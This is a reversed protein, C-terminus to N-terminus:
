HKLFNWAVGNLMKGNRMKRKITETRKEEGGVKIFKNRWGTSCFDRFVSFFSNAPLVGCLTSHGHISLRFVILLKVASNVRM